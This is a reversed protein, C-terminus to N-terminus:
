IPIISACSQRHRKTKKESLENGDVIVLNMIGDAIISNAGDFIKPEEEKRRLDKYDLNLYEHSYNSFTEKMEKLKEKGEIWSEKESSVKFDLEGKLEKM